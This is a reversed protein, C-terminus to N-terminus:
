NNVNSDGYNFKFSVTPKNAGKVSASAQYSNPSVGGGGSIFGFPGNGGSSVSVNVDEDPTNSDVTINAVIETDSYSSLTYGIGSGPDFTLSPINTGFNQGTFTVTTTTGSAWDSPEIGTIIPTNDTVTVTNSYFGTQDYYYCFDAM